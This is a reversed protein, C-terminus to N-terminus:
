LYGKEKLSVFKKDGIVLHDLLEIGILNGCEFLRRTVEIDERSPTPDGSPHNHVCIFSAASRKFAEKFVERPHVISSNLSGIFVTRKHIVQNKTNLYLCIFKVYICFIDLTVYTLRVAAHFTEFIKESKLFPKYNLM